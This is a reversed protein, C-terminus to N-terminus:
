SSLTHRHHADEIHFHFSKRILEGLSPISGGVFPKVPRQEVESSDRCINNIKQIM